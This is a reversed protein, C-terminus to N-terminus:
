TIKTYDPVAVHGSNINNTTQLNVVKRGSMVVGFM